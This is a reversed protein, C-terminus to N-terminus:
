NKILLYKFPLKRPLFVFEVIDCLERKYYGERALRELFRLLMEDVWVYTMGERKAIAWLSGHSNGCIRVPVLAVLIPRRRPYIFDHSVQRVINLCNSVEPSM